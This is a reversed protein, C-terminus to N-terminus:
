CDSSSETTLHCEEMNSRLSEPEHLTPQSECYPCWGASDRYFINYTTSNDGFQRVLNDAHPAGEGRYVYPWVWRLGRLCCQTM